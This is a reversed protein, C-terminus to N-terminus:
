LSAIWQWSIVKLRRRKQRRMLQRNGRRYQTQLLAQIPRPAARRQARRRLPRLWASRVVAAGQVIPSGSFLVSQPILAKAVQSSSWRLQAVASGIHEYYEMRVAYVKGGTLSVAKSANEAAGHDTWNNIVLQGDVYLRIGDDSTTYFTYNGTTAPKLSGTWTVSFGDAPIGAM